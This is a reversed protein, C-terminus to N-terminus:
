KLTTILNSRLKASNNGFFVYSTLASRIQSSYAVLSLIVAGRAISTLYANGNVSHVQGIIPRDVASCENMIACNITGVYRSNKSKNWFLSMAGSLRSDTANCWSSASASVPSAAVSTSPTVREIFSAASAFLM